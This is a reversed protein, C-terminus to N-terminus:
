LVGFPNETSAPRVIDLTDIVETLDDSLNDLSIDDLGLLPEMEPATVNFDDDALHYLKLYIKYNFQRENIRDGEFQENLPAVKSIEFLIDENQYYVVDGEIPTENIDKFWKVPIHILDDYQPILGFGGFSETGAFHTDDNRFTFMPFSNADTFNRAISEGFILNEKVRTPKMYRIPRGFLKSSEWCQVERMDGWPETLPKPQFNYM